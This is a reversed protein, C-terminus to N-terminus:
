GGGQGTTSPSEERGSSGVSRGNRHMDITDTAALVAM